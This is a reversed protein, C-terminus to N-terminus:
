KLSSRSAIRARLAALVNRVRAQQQYEEVGAAAAAADPPARGAPVAPLFDLGALHQAWRYPRDRRLRIDFEFARRQLKNAANPTDAGTDGPFLNVLLDEELASTDAGKKTKKASSSSSSLGGATAEVTVIHLTDLYRFVFTAAHSLALEVTLPHAAYVDAAAGSTGHESVRARKAARGGDEEDGDEGGGGEAAGGGAGEEGAGPPADKSAKAAARLAEEEVAQQKRVLSEADAVSGEISVEFDDAFAEKAAALQTYVVYLPPPLLRAAHKRKEELSIPLELHQQIPLSARKLGKLQTGLGDLFKRRSAIGAQLLKKRAQQNARDYM